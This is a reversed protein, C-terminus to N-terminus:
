AIPEEGAPEEVEAAVEVEEGGVDAPGGGFEPIAGGGVGAGEGGVAADTEAVEGAVAVEKWAPGAAQIQGLEWMLEADKRLFERNALIDRDKWGLYKKQAYTSSVFESSALNNFNGAKLELRQNERLEYFNTPVNFDVEFNQENLELKEFIGMLTLHTIYGKRIGAAFRQQQRMVFRAFKLEERLITSGDASAQDNPDLRTSPVKLARYLKKIFYMLDSLEGLNAGGALQDVTTGESGQRKAFWFADLMSQPNFKKVVDTQDMDFTKRSWYNQILKKLYAEAKPPPMNGVDVNFVLREPARVLRYIVIADEILSLQRYPRRANELFPVVFNKTENYVGSNVYMIQNQDMPIFEVREVKNPQSKNFIPKRYIFGKVLMNQINNYVPDIIEAPLNIVGLVGDKVYEEHVIQEFYVEGEVLLQRFYQWGKNKLDYYEVYRHFEKDLLEKEDVTLDIDKLQLSTIWGTEDPNITEDCIEDLADAVESYAAIIRYDRLRGAKDEQINAYMVDGFSSDKAFDGIPINNYPNSSSISAKALAEARRVGAQKFIKYKPNLADGEPEAVNAYPLRNQIYQILNRGFTSARGDNTVHSSNRSSSTSSGTGPM